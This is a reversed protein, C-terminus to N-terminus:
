IGFWLLGNRCVSLYRVYIVNLLSRLWHINMDIYVKYICYFHADRKQVSIFGVENINLILTCGMKACVYIDLISEIWSHLLIKYLCSHWSCRKDLSAFKKTCVYLGRIPKQICQKSYYAIDGCDSGTIVKSFSMWKRIFVALSVLEENQLITVNRNCMM